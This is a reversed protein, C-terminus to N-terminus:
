GHELQDHSRCCFCPDVVNFNGAFGELKSGERDPKLVKDQIVYGNLVRVGPVLSALAQIAAQSLM